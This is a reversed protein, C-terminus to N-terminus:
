EEGGASDPEPVHGLVHDAVKRCLQYEHEHDIQALARLARAMSLKRFQEEDKDAAKEPEPCSLKKLLERKNLRSPNM